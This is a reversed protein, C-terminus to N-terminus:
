EIGIRDILLYRQGTQMDRAYTLCCDINSNLSFSFLRMENDSHLIITSHERVIMSDAETISFMKEPTIFQFYKDDTSIRLMFGSSEDEYGYEWEGMFVEEYIATVTRDGDMMILAQTETLVPPEEDDDGQWCDDNSSWEVFEYRVTESEVTQKAEILVCTGSAYYGEGTVAEPDITLVDSPSTELNLYFDVARTTGVVSLLM